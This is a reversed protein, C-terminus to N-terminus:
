PLRWMPQDRPVVRKCGLAHRAQKLLTPSFGQERGLKEIEKITMQKDFERRLTAELWEKCEVLETLDEPSLAKRLLMDATQDSEELWEVRAIKPNEEWPTLTYFRTRAEQDLNNKTTAVARRRGTPDNPDKTVVLGVRALGVVAMSGGPRYLVPGDQSGKTLHQLAVMACGEEQLMTTLPSLASRVGQDETYKAEAALFTILPDLILLAADYFRIADRIWPIDQPIEIPVATGKGTGEEGAKEKMVDLLIVREANGGAADMRPRITDGPADEAVLMIVSKADRKQGGPLAEGNTLRAAWDIVLTSKGLGPDGALMTPKGVALFGPMLWDVAQPTVTSLRTQRVRYSYPDTM